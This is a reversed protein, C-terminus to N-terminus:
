EIVEYQGAKTWEPFALGDEDFVIKGDRITMVCRVRKTGFLKKRRSDTYAFVGSDERLLAIDAGRGEGLTGLEPYRRIAKAPNV